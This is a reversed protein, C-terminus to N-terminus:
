DVTPYTFITDIRAPTTFGPFYIELQGSKKIVANYNGTATTLCLILDSPPKPLGYLVVDGTAVNSNPTSELTVTVLGNRVFYGGDKDFKEGHTAIGSTTESITALAENQSSIAGTVTGGGITSIDTTGLMKYLWRINKFMASIKGFLSIHKEGSQMKDVDVWANSEETDYSTFTVTNDASDGDVALAGIGDPTITGALCDWYGDATYYVNTGAPYKYGSGDKFTDDTTFDDSINYMYGSQKTQNKLDVFSTTGMPILGGALGASIQRVQQYYYKANDVDENQRIGTDGVAYSEARTASNAAADAKNSATSASSASASASNASATESDSASEAAEVAEKRKSEMEAVWEAETGTYGYKVALAYASVPGLDVTKSM